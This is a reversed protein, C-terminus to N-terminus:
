MWINILHNYLSCGGMLNDHHHYYGAGQRMHTGQFIGTYIWFGGKTGDNTGRLKGWRKFKGITGEWDAM